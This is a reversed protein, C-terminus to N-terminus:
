EKYADGRPKVAIIIIVFVDDYRDFLVRYDGVRLRYGDRNTLKKVDLTPSQPDLALTEIASLIRRRQPRALRQLYKVAARRYEVRYGM